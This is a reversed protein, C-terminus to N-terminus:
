PHDSDSLSPHIFDLSKLYLELSPTHDPDLLYLHEPGPLDFITLIQSIPTTLTPFYFSIMTQPPNSDTPPQDTDM